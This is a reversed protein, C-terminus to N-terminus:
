PTGLLVVKGLKEQILTCAAAWAARRVDEIRVLNFHLTLKGENLRYRLRAELEVEGGGVFVPVKVKFSDPITLKGSAGATATTEENWMFQYNGDKLRSAQRFNATKVAELTMVVELMDAASPSVIQHAHDELFEGFEAQSMAKRNRGSWDAWGRDVELLLSVRHRRWRAMPEDAGGGEHDDVIAVLSGTKEDGYVRSGGDIFEMLYDVFSQVASFRPTAEILDPREPTVVRPCDQLSYGDPLLAMPHFRGCADENPQIIIKAQAAGAALLTKIAENEAGIEPHSTSM